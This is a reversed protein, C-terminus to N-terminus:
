SNLELTSAEEGAFRSEEYIVTVIIMISRRGSSEGGDAEKM